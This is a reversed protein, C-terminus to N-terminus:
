YYNGLTMQQTLEFLLCLTSQSWPAGFVFQVGVNGVNVRRYGAREWGRLGTAKPPDTAVRHQHSRLHTSPRGHIRPAGQLMENKSGASTLGTANCQRPRLRPQLQASSAGSGCSSTSCTKGSGKTRLPLGAQPSAPCVPTWGQWKSGVSGVAAVRCTRVVPTDYM